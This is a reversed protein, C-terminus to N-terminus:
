RKILWMSWNEPNIPIHVEKGQPAAEFQRVYDPFHMDKLAPQHWDRVIAIIMFFLLNGAAIKVIASRFDMCWLLTWAFALNPFFWYHSGWAAAMLEWLSLGPRQPLMPSILSAALVLLSFLLFLKMNEPAKAACIAVLGTCCITVIGLFLFMGWGQISAFINTGILVGLYVQGGLIRILWVFSPGLAFHPRGSSDLILLGWAEIIATAALVAVQVRRWCEQHKWSRFIALPLLLICYPGSLGLLLLFLLDFAQGIVTRPKSATLLLFASLALFCQVNTINTGLESLNPLALYIVALISRYRLNGWEASRGSVLLNVPLAQGAVAIVNLVLPAFSLPALLALAAGLRPVAHFYGGYPRLLASWWGYNYAEQFFVRGDEAYFQAHLISGPRRAIVMLCALIFVGGHVWWNHCAQQTHRESTESM